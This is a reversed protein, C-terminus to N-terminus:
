AGRHAKDGVAFGISTVLLLLVGPLAAMYEFPSIGAILALAGLVLGARGIWRPLGGQRAAVFMAIGALGALVWCWPITGVWHNYLAANAPDVGVKDTDSTFSLVFETDLGSGLVLVVATALLGGFALMPALSDPSVSSRLRRFLGAAFVAVLIATVTAFGHFAFMAGTQDHLKEAIGATNGALDEDYVANVMSSTVITGAGALGAGIGALAWTRSRAPTTAHPAAPAVDSRVPNSTSIHTTM